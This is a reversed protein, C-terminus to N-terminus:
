ASLCPIAADIAQTKRKGLQYITGSKTVAVDDRLEIVASTTVVRGDALRPHGYVEGRLYQKMRWPNSFVEWNEIRVAQESMEAKRESQGTPVVKSGHRGGLGAISALVICSEHSAM